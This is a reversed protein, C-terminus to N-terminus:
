AGTVTRLIQVLEPDGYDCYTASPSPRAGMATTIGTGHICVGNPWYVKATTLKVAEGTVRNLFTTQMIGKGYTSASGQGVTDTIFIDAYDITGYSILAGILAESASATNGNAAVYIDADGIYEDYFDGAALFRSHAGNGYEATLVVEQDSQADRLLYSAIYQMIGLDGGGDNRLDLLLTKEGDTRFQELAFAFEQAANGYFRRLQLYAAGQALEDASVYESVDTWVYERSDEACLAAYAHGGAAYLVYSETYTQVTVSAVVCNETDTPSQDSLRLRVTDGEQLNSLAAAARYVYGGRGDSAFTDAFAEEGEAVGTLYMGERVAGTFFVPSNIAVSYIKNTGTFFSLGIGTGIGQSSTVVGEYEAPSYYQSYSDLLESEVGGIAANWFDDDDIDEYYEGDIMEKFWLLSRLGDDLTFYYTYYGAAFVAAALLVAAGAWLIKFLVSRGRKQENKSEKQM